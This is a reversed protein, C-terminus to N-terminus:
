KGGDVKYEEKLLKRIDKELNDVEEVLTGNYIGRPYGERDVLVFYPTHGFGGDVQEDREAGNFFDKALLHTAEENGTFFNWNKATIGREQRYTRLRAPTDRDPDISFSFFELHKSIDKTNGNLRKLQATMPPCISPCNTFFFDVVRVKGEFKKSSTMISDHNLYNFDPITHYLTDAIEKGNVTRYEVDRNGIIPLISKKREMADMEEEAGSGCALLTLTIIALLLLNINKMM